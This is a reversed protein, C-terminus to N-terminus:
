GAARRAACVEVQLGQLPAWCGFRSGPSRARTLEQEGTRPAARPFTVEKTLLGPRLLDQPPASAPGGGQERTGRGQAVRAPFRLSTRASVRRSHPHTPPARARGAARTGGFERARGRPWDSGAAGCEARERRGSAALVPDGGSDPVLAAEPRAVSQHTAPDRPERDAVSAEGRREPSM